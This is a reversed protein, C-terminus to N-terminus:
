HVCKASWTPTRVSNCMRVSDGSHSATVIRNTCPVLMLVAVAFAFFRARPLGSTAKTLYARRRSKAGGYKRKGIRVRTRHLVDTWGGDKRNGIRVRTRHLVDTWRM